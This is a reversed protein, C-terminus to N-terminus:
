AENLKGKLMDTINIAEAKQEELIHIYYNYSTQIDKHGLLQSVVKIDVGNRILLSGFSHRLAHLGCKKVSCNARVLMNNLTRTINRENAINGTSSIVVHDDPKHTPNLEAYKEFAYIARQSLPVTRYSKPTKTTSINIDISEEDENKVRSFNNKIHIVKKELDVNRWKLAMLEGIRIGTEMIIIIAYKNNGYVPEGIKGGFNFGPQNIRKHEEWLKDMDEKSLWKIEKKPVAVNDESPMKVLEMYNTALHNKQVAYQLCQNLLFYAKSITNRSYKKALTNIHKQLLEDNLSAMQIQAIPYNLIYNRLIANYGTYTKKKVSLKVKNELWDQMYDGLIEQSLEKPSLLGLSKEFEEKKAKVEQLTRGYFTKPSSMGDYKKKFYNYEIGNIKRKGWSGEGKVGRKRRAM